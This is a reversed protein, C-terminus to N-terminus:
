HFKSGEPKAHPNKKRQIGMAFIRHGGMFGLIPHTGAKSAV